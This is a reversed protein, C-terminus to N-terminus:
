LELSICVVPLIFVHLIGKEAEFKEIPDSSAYRNSIQKEKKGDSSKRVGDQSLDFKLDDKITKNKTSNSPRHHDQKDYSL